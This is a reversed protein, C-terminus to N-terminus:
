AYGARQMEMQHVIRLGHAEAAKADKGHGKWLGLRDALSTNYVDNLKSAQPFEIPVKFRRCIHTLAGILQPTLMTSHSQQAAMWPYLTFREVILLGIVGHQAFDWVTDVCEAPTMQVAATCREHHWTAVGVNKDGPDISMWCNPLPERKPM